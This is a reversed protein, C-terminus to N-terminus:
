QRDCARRPTVTQEAPCDPVTLNEGLVTDANGCATALQRATLGTVEVLNAGSLNADTLIADTLDCEVLEAGNLDAGTFDAGKFSCAYFVTDRMQAARLDAESLDVYYWEAENLNANEFKGRRLATRANEDDSNNLVFSGRLNANSLNVGNLNTGEYFTAGQLDACTLDADVFSSDHIDAGVLSAGVMKAGDLTATFLRASNLVAEDLDAYRLKAERLEILEMLAGRLNARHLSPQIMVDGSLDANALNARALDLRRETLSGALGVVLIAVSVSLVPVGIRRWAPPCRRIQLILMAVTTIMTVAAVYPGVTPHPWAKWTFLFLTGPVLWYFLLWATLLASISDFNTLIPLRKDAPIPHMKQYGVFIHLYINLGILLLPSGVLFAVFDVGYGLIPLQVKETPHIIAVDTSGALTIVCFLCAILLALFTRRITISTEKHIEEWEKSDSEDPYKTFVVDSLRSGFNRFKSM